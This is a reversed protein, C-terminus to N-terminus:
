HSEALFATLGGEGGGGGRGVEGGRGYWCSFAYFARDIRLKKAGQNRGLAPPTQCLLVADPGKLIVTQKACLLVADPGKLIVTQKACLLVADPGKLIVTQKACLLVADPGKLIVTQKGCLLVAYPGKLRDSKSVSFTCRAGESQRIKVCCFQM